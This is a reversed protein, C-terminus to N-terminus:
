FDPEPQPEEVPQQQAIYAALSEVTSYEELMMRFPVKVGFKTSVAQSAQLLLLSDAGLELFHTSVDIAGAEAGLLEAFTATLASTINAQRASGPGKTLRPESM